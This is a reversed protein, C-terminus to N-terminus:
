SAVPRRDNRIPHMANFRAGFANVSCRRLGVKSPWKMNMGRQVRLDPRSQQGCVPGRKDSSTERIRDTEEGYSLDRLVEDHHEELEAPCACTLDSVRIGDLAIM